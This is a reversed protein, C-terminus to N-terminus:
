INILKAIQHKKLLHIYEPKSKQGTIDGCYGPHITSALLYIPFTVCKNDVKKLFILETDLIDNFCVSKNLENSRIQQLNLFLHNHNALRIRYASEHFVHKFSMLVTNLILISKEKRESMQPKGEGM